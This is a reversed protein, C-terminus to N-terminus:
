VQRRADRLLALMTATSSGESVLGMEVLQAMSELTKTDGHSVAYHNRYGWQGKPIHSGIGLMHRMNDLQGPTVMRKNQKAESM